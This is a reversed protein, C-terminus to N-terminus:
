CPSASTHTIYCVPIYGIVPVLQVVFFASIKKLSKLNSSVLVFENWNLIEGNRKKKWLPVCLKTEFYLAKFGSPITKIQSGLAKIQSSNSSMSYLKLRLKEIAVTFLVKSFMSM